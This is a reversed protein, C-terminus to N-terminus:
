AFARLQVTTRVLEGRLRGEPLGTEGGCVEVIEDARAELGDAIRRLGDARLAGDALAPRRAAVAAAEAAPAVTAVDVADVSAGREGTRPDISQLTSPM